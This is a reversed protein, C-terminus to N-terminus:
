SFYRNINRIVHPVHIKLNEQHYHYINMKKNARNISYIINKLPILTIFVLENKEISVPDSIYRRQLCFQYINIKNELNYLGNYGFPFVDSKINYKKLINVIITLVDSSQMFTFSPTDDNNPVTTEIPFLSKDEIIAATIEKNIYVPITINFVEEVFERYATEYPLEDDHSHGGPFLWVYKKYPISSNSKAILILVNKDEKHILVLGAGKPKAM